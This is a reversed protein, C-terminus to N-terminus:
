SRLSGQSNKIANTAVATVTFKTFMKSFGKNTEVNLDDIHINIFPVVSTTMEETLGIANAVSSHVKYVDM